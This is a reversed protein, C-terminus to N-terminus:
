SLAVPYLRKPFYVSAIISVEFMIERNNGTITVLFMIKRGIRNYVLFMFNRGIRHLYHSLVYFM